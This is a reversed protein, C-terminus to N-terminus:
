ANRENSAGKGRRTQKKRELLLDFKKSRAAVAAPDVQEGVIKAMAMAVAPKLLLRSVERYVPNDQAKWFQEEEDVGNKLIREILASRSEARLEALADLRKVLDEDLRISTGITAM